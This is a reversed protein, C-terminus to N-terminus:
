KKMTPAAAASRPIKMRKDCMLGDGTDCCQTRNLPFTHCLVRPSPLALPLPIVDVIWGSIDIKKSNVKLETERERERKGHHLSVVLFPDLFQARKICRRVKRKKIYYPNANALLSWYKQGYASSTLCCVDLIAFSAPLIREASSSIYVTDTFPRLFPPLSATDFLLSSSSLHDSLAIVDQSM